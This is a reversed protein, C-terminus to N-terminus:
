LSDEEVEAEAAVEQDAVQAHLVRHGPNAAVIRITAAKANPERNGPM